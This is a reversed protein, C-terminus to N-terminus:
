PKDEGIRAASKTRGSWQRGGAPSACVGPSEPDERTRARPVMFKTFMRPGTERTRTPAGARGNLACSQCSGARNGTVAFM